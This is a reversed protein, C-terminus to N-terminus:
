FWSLSIHAYMIAVRAFISEVEKGRGLLALGRMCHGIMLLVDAENEPSSNNNVANNDGTTADNEDKRRNEQIIKLIEEMRYTLSLITDSELRRIRPALKLLFQARETDDELASRMSPLTSNNSNSSSSAGVGGGTATEQSGAVRSATLAAVVDTSSQLDKVLFLTTQACRELSSIRDLKDGTFTFGPSTLFFTDLVVVAIDISKSDEMKKRSREWPRHRGTTTAEMDADNGGASNAGEDKSGSDMGDQRRSAMTKRNADEEKRRESADQRVVAEAALLDEYLDAAEQAYAVKRQERRIENGQAVLKQLHEVYAKETAEASSLVPHLQSLLSHLDPPLTSLSTGIHLLNQGSQSSALKATLIQSHKNSKDKLDKLKAELASTSMATLALDDNRAAIKAAKTTASDSMSMNTTTITPGLNSQFPSPADTRGTVSPRGCFSSRQEAHWKLEPESDFKAVRM